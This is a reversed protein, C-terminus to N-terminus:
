DGPCIDIAELAAHMTATGNVFSIAHEANFKSKFASEFRKMMVAGSSTSFQTDLVENVYKRELESVRQMKFEEQPLYDLTPHYM